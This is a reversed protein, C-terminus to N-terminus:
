VASPGLTREKTQCIPVCRASSDKLSSDKWPPRQLELLHWANAYEALQVQNSLSGSAQMFRSRPIIYFRRDNEYLPGPAGFVTRGGRVDHIDHIVILFSAWENQLRRLDAAEEREANLWPAATLQCRHGNIYVRNQAHKPGFTKQVFKIKLGLKEAMTRVAHLKWNNKAV